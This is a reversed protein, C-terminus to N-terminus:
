VVKFLKRELYDVITQKHLIQANKDSLVRALAIQKNYVTSNAINLKNQEEELHSKLNFIERNQIRVRKDQKTHSLKDFAVDVLELIHQRVFVVDEDSFAENIKQKLQKKVKNM